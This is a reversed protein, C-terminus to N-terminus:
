IKKINDKIINFVRDFLTINDKPINYKHSMFELHYDVYQNTKLLTYLISNAIDNLRYYANGINFYLEPSHVGSDLIQLYVQISQEYKSDNYLNNAEFFKENVGSPQFESQSFCTISCGM